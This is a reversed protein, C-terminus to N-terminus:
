INPIELFIECVIRSPVRPTERINEVDNAVASFQGLQRPCDKSPIEFSVLSGEVQLSLCLMAHVKGMGPIPLEVGTIQFSLINRV